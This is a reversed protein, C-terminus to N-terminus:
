AFAFGVCACLHHPLCWMPHPWVVDRRTCLSPSLLRLAVSGGGGKSQSRVTVRPLSVEDLTGEATMPGGFYVYLAARAPAAQQGQYEAGAAASIQLAWRGGYGQGKSRVIELGDAVAHTANQKAFVTQVSLPGDRVHQEGFSRGDHRRWGFQQLGDENRAEHRIELPTPPNPAGWMAGAM